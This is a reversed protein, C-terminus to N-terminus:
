TAYSIRFTFKTNVAQCEFKHRYTSKSCNITIQPLIFKKQLKHSRPTTTLQDVFVTWWCIREVDSSLSRPFPPVGLDNITRLTHSHTDGGRAIKEFIGLIRHKTKIECCILIRLNLLPTPPRLQYQWLQKLIVLPM